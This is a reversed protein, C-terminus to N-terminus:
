QLIMPLVTVMLKPKAFVSEQHASSTKKWTDKKAKGRFCEM